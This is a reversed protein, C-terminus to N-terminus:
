RVRLLVGHGRPQLEFNHFTFFYFGLKAPSCSKPHEHEAGGSMQDRLQAAAIPYVALLADHTLRAITGHARSFLIDGTRIIQKKKASSREKVEKNMM